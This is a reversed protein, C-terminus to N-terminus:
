EEVAIVEISPDHKEVCLTFMQKATSLLSNEFERTSFRVPRGDSWTWEQRYIDVFQDPRLPDAELASQLSAQIGSHTAHGFQFASPLIVV